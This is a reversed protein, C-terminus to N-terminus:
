YLNSVLWFLIGSLLSYLLDPMEPFHSSARCVALRPAARDLEQMQETTALKM